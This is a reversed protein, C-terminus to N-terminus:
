TERQAFGIEPHFSREVRDPQDRGIEPADPSVPMVTLRAFCHHKASGLRANGERVTRNRENVPHAAGDTRM